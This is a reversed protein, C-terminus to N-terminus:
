ALSQSSLRQGRKTFVQIFFPVGVFLKTLLDFEFLKTM